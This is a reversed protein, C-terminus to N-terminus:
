RHDKPLNCAKATKWRKDAKAVRSLRMINLTVYVMAHISVALLIVVLYVPGSAVLTFFHWITLFTRKICQM